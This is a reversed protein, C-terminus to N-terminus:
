HYMNRVNIKCFKIKSFILLCCIIKFFDGLMCLSSNMFFYAKYLYKKYLSLLRVSSVSRFTEALM